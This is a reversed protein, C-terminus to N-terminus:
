SKCLGRHSLNGLDSSSPVHSILWFCCFPQYALLTINNL